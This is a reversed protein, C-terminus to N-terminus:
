KIEKGLYKIALEKLITTYIEKLRIDREIVDMKNTSRIKTQTAGEKRLKDKLNKLRHNLKYKGRGELLKYSEIRVERYKNGNSNNSVVQGIKNLTRSVWRRWDEDTNIITDKIYNVEHITSVIEKRLTKNQKELENNKIELKAVAKFVSNFMQLEPSLNSTDIQQQKYKKEVEIFYRRYEKSKIKLEENARPNVGAVMCIEKAIDLKLIYEKSTSAGIERKVKFQFSSYDINEVADVNELNSKIWDAFQAKVGLGKYLERGNVVKEGKDTEYIKIIGEKQWIRLNRM